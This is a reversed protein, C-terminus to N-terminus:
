DPTSRVQYRAVCHAPGGKAEGIYLENPSVVFVSLTTPLRIPRLFRLSVDTLASARGGLCREVISEVLFGLTLLGHQTVQAQGLLRALWPLTHMPNYDGSLLAFQRASETTFTRAVLLEASTPITKPAPRPTVRAARRPRNPVSVLRFLFRVADPHASTGVRLEHLFSAQGGPAQTAELCTCEFHHDLLPDMPMPSEIHLSMEVTVLRSLPAPCRILTEGILRAFPYGCLVPPYDAPDLVAELPADTRCLAWFQRCEAPRLPAASWGATAGVLEGLECRRALLRHLLLSVQALGHHRRPRGLFAPPLSSLLGPM